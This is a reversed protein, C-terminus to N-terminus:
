RQRTRRRAAMAIMGLALIGLTTPEPMLAGAPMAFKLDGNTRDYYSVMPTGTGPDLALSVYEGVIGPADITEFQWASGDWYAYKLDTDTTPNGSAYAIRPLNSVPDLALSSAFGVVGNTDIAGVYWAGNLYQAVKLDANTTDHYSIIPDGTSTLALSPHSGVHTSADVTTYHWTSGDWAAYKLTGNAEDHYAIRPNGFSDLKLSSYLGVNGTDVTQINWTANNRTAYKLAGAGRDYYAIRPRGMGDIALSTYEGLNSGSQVFQTNWSSGNWSAFKVGNAVKLIPDASTYSIAPMNTMNTSYFALSSHTGVRGTDVVQNSWTSGGWSAYKLSYNTQDYYSISPFHSGPNLALSTLLGVDQSTDVQETAWGGRASTSCASVFVLALLVLLPGQNTRM